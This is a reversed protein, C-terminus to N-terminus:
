QAGAALNKSLFAEIRQYLEVKHDLYHAGGREDFFSISEAAVGKKQLTSVFDRAMSKEAGSDYEGYSVLVPVRIDTAHKLPSIADFKEPDNKPDGLKLLLRFYLPNVYKSYEAEGIIRGWDYRASIAVACRYLSPEFAVGCLALYGGFGTGMIVVRNRDVLGSAILDKTADTVDERMKRFDWEDEKPVMWTSGASGRYNPQLVAYGRSALFQVEEDYGWTSRSSSGYDTRNHPLVVLPPPNQPTAGKPLTLYADFEKGDRTKFKRVGMPQMRQPDIWPMSNRFMGATHSELNAWSYIAPQSDSFSILLVTTRAGDIGAIRVIQGPFMADVQAQLNRMGEDFWVSFPKAKQGIAGLIQNTKPDRYLWGDFDYAPDQSLVDLVKGSAADM